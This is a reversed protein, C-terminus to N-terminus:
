HTLKNKAINVIEDFNAYDDMYIKCEEGYRRFWTMQRKAYNRSGKKVAEVADDYTYKGDFYDFIEKYGIGQLATRSLVLSKDDYLSRVEDMLGAELMVDVRKNIRDYLRERDRYELVIIKSDYPPDISKSEEDWISKPKGTLHYIELARIVRKLNNPHISEASLPDVERLLAHVAEVGEDMAKKNLNKRYEDDAGAESFSTNGLVHDIYLGTGGCFIPLRGKLTIEDIKEAALASYDACSFEVSPEIFDILHHPVGDMEAIDPKATGISMRKYIQMSDCSIIEGNLEKALAISLATKGSATPGVIAAVRKKNDSNM